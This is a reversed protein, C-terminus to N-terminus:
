LDSALEELKKVLGSHRGFLYDLSLDFLCKLVEKNLLENKDSYYTLDQNVNITHNANWYFELVKLVTSNELLENLERSKKKLDVSMGNLKFNELIFKKLKEANYIKVLISQEMAHEM